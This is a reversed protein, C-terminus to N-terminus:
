FDYVPLLGFADIVADRLEPERHEPLWGVREGLLSRGITQISECKVVSAHDVGDARDVVLQTRYERRGTSIPAVTVESVHQVLREPTLLLVYRDKDVGARHLPRM